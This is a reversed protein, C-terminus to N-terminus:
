INASQLLGRFSDFSSMADDLLNRKQLAIFMACSRAQCNLSREPNFEIDTFGACRQLRALWDRHPYLARFYLWDYFATAPSTPFRKGEFEFATLRGSSKLRPDRKAERSDKWYLDTFPGGREFVKSGQYACEVTTERGEIEIKLYFASLKQGVERESKSSIELLPSLGRAEAAHHLEVVNKKKQSPALGPHWHFRVSVEHVLQTGTTAPVFVPREAMDM